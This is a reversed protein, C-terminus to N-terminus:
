DTGASPRVKGIHWRLGLSVLLDVNQLSVDTDTAQSRLWKTSRGLLVGGDFSWADYYWSQGISAGYAKVQQGDLSVFSTSRVFAGLRITSKRDYNTVDREWGLHFGAADRVGTRAPIDSGDADATFEMAAWPALRVDASLTSKPGMRRVVGVNLQLPSQRTVAQEAVTTDVFIFTQEHPLTAHVGIRLRETAQFMTGVELALGAFDRELRTRRIRSNSAQGSYGIPGDTVYKANGGLLNATVGLRLRDTIAVAVSPSIARIGDENFYRTTSFYRGNTELRNVKFAGVRLQDAFRRYAIGVAVRRGAVDFPVAVGGFELVDLAGSMEGDGFFRPYGSQTQQNTSAAVGTAMVLVRSVVGYEPRQLLTLGAPNWGIATIDDVVATVANAMGLARPGNGIASPDPREQAAASAALACCLCSALVTRRLTQSSTM